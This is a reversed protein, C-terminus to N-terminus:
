DNKEKEFNGREAIWNGREGKEEGGEVVDSKSSLDFILFSL